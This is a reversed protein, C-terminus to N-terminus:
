EITVVVKQYGRAEYASIQAPGSGEIEVYDPFDSANFGRMSAHGLCLELKVDHESILSQVQSHIEPYAADADKLLAFQESGHSVVAINLGPFQKRLNVIETKVWPIAIALYEDEWDVIEFVVGAPAVDLAMVRKLDTNALSSFSFLSFTFLACASLLYRRFLSKPKMIQDSNLPHYALVAIM